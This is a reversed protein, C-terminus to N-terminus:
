DRFMDLYLIINFIDRTMIDAPQSPESQPDALQGAEEPEAFSIHFCNFTYTLYVNM